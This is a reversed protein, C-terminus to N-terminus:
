RRAMRRFTNGIFHGPRNPRALMPMSRIEARTMARSAAQVEDVLTFASVVFGVALLIRLM